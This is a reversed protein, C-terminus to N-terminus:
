SCAGISVPAEVFSEHLARVAEQRAEPEIACTISLPRIYTSSVSTGLKALVAGVQGMVQKVLPAPAVLSVSALEEIVSGMDRTQNRLCGAITEADPMDEIDLLCDQRGNKGAHLQDGRVGLEDLVRQIAPKRSNCSLMRIRRERSTVGVVRPQTKDALTGKIELNGGIITFKRDGFTSKAHVAVGHRGALEICPPHLVRAGHLAYETMLEADVERLHRPERVIRPDASYVGSVDSYIECREAGLAVALAVATTDSGGRGLTTVEGDSSIGQYGAVVVIKGAALEESVREPRIDLITANTHEEDTFIGCQPGTLSIAPHGEQEIAMALLAMSIREGSSLLMDLERRAPVTSAARAQLILESTTNGMASVVAVVPQGNEASKVIKSAVRGIREMTSLSSGGYKQVIPKKHFQIM